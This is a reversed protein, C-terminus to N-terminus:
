PPRGGAIDSSLGNTQGEAATPEKAAGCDGAEGPDSSGQAQQRHKEKVHQAMKLLRLKIGKPLMHHQALPSPLSPLKTPLPNTTPRHAPGM